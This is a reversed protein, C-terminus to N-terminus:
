LILQPTKGFMCKEPLAKTSSTNYINDKFTQYVENTLDDPGRGKKTPFNKVM